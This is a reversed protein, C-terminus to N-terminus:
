YSALGFYKLVSNIAIVIGVALVFEGYGPISVGFLYMLLLLAVMVGLAIYAPHYKINLGNYIAYAVLNAVIFLGLIAIIDSISYAFM